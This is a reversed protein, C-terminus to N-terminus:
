REDKLRKLAQLIVQAIAQRQATKETNGSTKYKVKVKYGRVTETSGTEEADTQELFQVFEEPLFFLIREALEAELESAVMKQIKSLTKRESSLVVVQDFGAALCKQINKFEYESTSSVSIECAIRRGNRALSVDISGIGSLVPEEVIVRYGKDEALRKILQQLYKHQQGGRGLALADKPLGEQPRTYVNDLLPELAAPASEYVAATPRSPPAPASTFSPQSTVVPQTVVAEGADRPTLGIELALQTKLSYNARTYEIIEDAFGQPRPPPPNTAFLFTDGAQDPRCLAHYKPLNALDLPEFRGIQHRLAQADKDGVGFMVMTGINGFIADREAEGLQSIFQHALTLCLKYKRAESLIKAFARSTFNQFEDVYLYYPHRQEPPLKARQMVALQLQSVLLSGLLQADDEGIGGLNVLLIKRQEIVEYFNLNSQPQSLMGYLSSLMFKGMRNVIPQVSERNSAFDNQWFDVLRRDTLRSVVNKRYDQNQLLRKLDFFTTGPTQVLTHLAFRLVNDMREGWSDSLRRFTTQLNTALLDLEEDNSVKLLNMSVPHDKDAANLYIVDKIRAEPIYALLPYTGTAVLDGHPDIVAVGDGRLIDQLAANFILTSKGTGSKGVVYVHRDRVTDPLAVPKKTGRAESEGIMIEGTTFYEPPLQQKMNMTELRKCQVDKTPFHALNTLESTSVLNWDLIPNDTPEYGESPEQLKWSQEPTEYQGFHRQRIMEAIRADGCFINVCVAWPPEKKELRSRMESAEALLMKAKAIETTINDAIPYADQHRISFIHDAMTKLYSLSLNQREPIQGELLYSQLEDPCPVLRLHSPGYIRAIENRSLNRNTLPQDTLINWYLEWTWPTVATFGPVLATLPIGPEKWSLMDCLLPISQDSLPRCILQIALEGTLSPDDLISFLQTYPDRAFDSTDLLQTSRAPTLTTLKFPSGLLGEPGDEEFICSGSPFHILFQQEIFSRHGKPFSIVFCIRDQPTMLTFSLPQRIARLSNWFREMDGTSSEAPPLLKLTEFDRFYPFTNEPPALEELVKHKDLAHTIYRDELLAFVDRYPMSLREFQREKAAEDAQRKAEKIDALIEAERPGTVDAALPSEMIPIWKRTGKPKVYDTKGVRDQFIWQKIERVPAPGFEKRTRSHYISCYSESDYPDDPM